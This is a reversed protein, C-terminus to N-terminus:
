PLSETCPYDEYLSRDFRKMFVLENPLNDNRYEKEDLWLVIRNPRVTQKLLSYITYVASGKVRKGYSTLTVIIDQDQKESLVLRRRCYIAYRVKLKMLNGMAVDRLIGLKEGIM